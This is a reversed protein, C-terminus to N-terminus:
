IHRDSDPTHDVRPRNTEEEGRSRKMGGNEGGQQIISIGLLSLEFMLFGM